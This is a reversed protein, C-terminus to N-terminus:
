HLQQLDILSNMITDALGISYSTMFIKIKLGLEQRNAAEKQLRALRRAELQPAQKLCECV